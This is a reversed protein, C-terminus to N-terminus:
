YLSCLVLCFLAKNRVLPGKPKSCWSHGSGCHPQVWYQQLWLSISGTHCPLVLRLPFLRRSNAEERWVFIQIQLSENHTPPLRSPLHETFRLDTELSFIREPLLPLLCAARLGREEAKGPRQCWSLSLVVTNLILCGIQGFSWLVQPCPIGDITERQSSERRM